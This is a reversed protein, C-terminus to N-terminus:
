LLDIVFLGNLRLLNRTFFVLKLKYHIVQLLSGIPFHKHLLKNFLLNTESLEFYKNKLKDM